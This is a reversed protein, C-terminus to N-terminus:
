AWNRRNIPYTSHSLEESQQHKAAGTRRPALRLGQRTLLQEVLERNFFGMNEDIPNQLSINGIHGKM